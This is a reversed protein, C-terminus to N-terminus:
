SYFAVDYQPLVGGVIHVETVPQGDYKKVMEFMEDMTFEWGEEKQKLLRSYSCFKCDYVCLNTPEIHFNRNFFTKDGHKKERVYNALIGLYGLEGKEYLVVGEAFNIRENKSVKEAIAKLEVDLNNDSLLSHLKHEADMLEFICYLWM